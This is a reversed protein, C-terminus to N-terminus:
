AQNSPAIYGPEGFPEPLLGRYREPKIGTNYYAVIEAGVPNRVLEHARRKVLCGYVRPALDFFPQRDFEYLDALRLARELHERREEDDVANKAAFLLQGLYTSVINRLTGTEKFFLVGEDCEVLTSFSHEIPMHRRKAAETSLFVSGMAVLWLTGVGALMTELMHGGVPSWWELLLGSLWVFIGVLLLYIARNIM